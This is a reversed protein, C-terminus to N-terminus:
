RVPYEDSLGYFDNGIRVIRPPRSDEPSTKGTECQGEGGSLKETDPAISRKNGKAIKPIKESVPPGSSFNRRGDILICGSQSLPTIKARSRPPLGKVLHHPRIQVDDLVHTFIRESLKSRLARLAM